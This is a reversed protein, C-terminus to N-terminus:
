RVLVVVTNDSDSFKAAGWAYQKGDDMTWMRFSMNGNDKEGYWGDTFSGYSLFWNRYSEDVENEMNEDLKKRWEIHPSLTEAKKDKRCDMHLTGLHYARKGEQNLPDYIVLCKWDGIADEPHHINEAKAPVGAKMVGNLFWSFEVMTPTKTTSLKEAIDSKGYYGHKDVGYITGDKRKYKRTIVSGLPEPDPDVPIAIWGTTGSTTTYQEWHQGPKLLDDGPKEPNPNDKTGQVKGTSGDTVTAGVAAFNRESLYPSLACCILMVGLTMIAMFKKKM